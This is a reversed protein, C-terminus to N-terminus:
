GQQQRNSLSQQTSDEPAREEATSHSDPSLDDNNALQAHPAHDVSDSDSLSEDLPAHDSEDM